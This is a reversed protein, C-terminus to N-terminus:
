FFYIQRNLTPLYIFKIPSPLSSFKFCYLLPISLSHASNSASLSFSPLIQHLPLLERPRPPLTLGLILPDLRLAAWLGSVESFVSHYQATLDFCAVRQISGFSHITTNLYPRGRLLYSPLESQHLSSAWPFPRCVRNHVQAPSGHLEFEVQQCALPSSSLLSPALPRQCSALGLQRIQNDTSATLSPFTGAPRHGSQHRM